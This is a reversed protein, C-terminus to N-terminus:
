SEDLDDNNAKIRDIEKLSEDIMNVLENGKVASADYVFKLSPTMRLEVVQALKYRLFKSAKNLRKVVDENKKQDGFVSVYVKAYDFDRTVEVSSISVMAINPDNIENRILLALERQLLQGVRDTRSFNKPM